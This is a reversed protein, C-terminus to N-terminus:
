EHLSRIRLDILRQTSDIVKYAKWVYLCGLGTGTVISALVAVGILNQLWKSM